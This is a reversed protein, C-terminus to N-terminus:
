RKKIIAYGMETLTHAVAIMKTFETKYTAKAGVDRCFDKGGYDELEDAHM